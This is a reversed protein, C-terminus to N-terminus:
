YGASQKRYNTRLKPTRKKHERLIYRPRETCAQEYLKNQQIIQLLKYYYLQDVRLMSSKIFLPDSPVDELNGRYKEFCRLIKKILEHYNRQSTTGWVSIGCAAKSHFLAYCMKIRMPMLNITKYFCGVIRGLPTTLHDLHTNWSLEERFRVGLFKHERVRAIPAWCGQSILEFPVYVPLFYHFRNWSFKWSIIRMKEVM